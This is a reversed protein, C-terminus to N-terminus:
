LKSDSGACILAVSHVQVMHWGNQSAPPRGPAKRVWVLVYEQWVKEVQSVCGWICASLLIRFSILPGSQAKANWCRLLNVTMTLYVLSPLFPTSTFGDVLCSIQRPRLEQVSGCPLRVSAWPPFHGLKGAWWAERDANNKFGVRGAGGESEGGKRKRRRPRAQSQM